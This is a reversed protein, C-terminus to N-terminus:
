PAPFYTAVQAVSELTEATPAGTVPEAEAIVTMAGSLRSDYYKGTFTVGGLGLFRAAIPNVNGTGYTDDLRKLAQAAARDRMRVWYVSLVLSGGRGDALLFLGRKLSRCPTLVFFERVEGHSNRACSLRREVKNRSQRVGVRRWAQGRKGQAAAKQANVVRAQAAASLGDAAAGGVVGGSGGFAAVGVLAAGAVVAGAGKKKSSGGLPYVTGDKRTRFEM